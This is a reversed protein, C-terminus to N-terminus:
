YFTLGLILYVGHSSMCQFNLTCEDAKKYMYINMPNTNEPALAKLRCESPPAKILSNM